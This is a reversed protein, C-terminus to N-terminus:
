YRLREARFYAAQEEGRQASVSLDLYVQVDGALTLRGAQQTPRFVGQDYPILLLANAGTTVERLEVTTSLQEVSSLDPVYVEVTEVGRVFPALLSAAAFSTLAYPIGLRDATTGIREALRNPDRELSFFRKRVTKTPQYESKWDDLLRGPEELSLLHKTRTAYREDILRKVIKSTAGLSVNAERALGVLTTRRARASLGGGPTGRVDELLIRSLRSAVPSFLSGPRGRPPSPNRDQIREIYVDRDRLLCNGALDVYGVGEERCIERVRPSVFPAALMPCAGKLNNAMLRLQRAGERVRGPSVAAKIEFILRGRRGTPLTVDADLDPRLPGVSPEPRLRVLTISPILSPLRTRIQDRLPLNADGFTKGIYRYKM